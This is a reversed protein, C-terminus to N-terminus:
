HHDYTNMPPSHDQIIEVIDPSIEKRDWKSRGERAVGAMKDKKPQHYHINFLRM